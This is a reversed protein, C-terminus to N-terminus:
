RGSRDSSSKRYRNWRGREQKITLAQPGALQRPIRGGLQRALELLQGWRWVPLGSAHTGWPELGAAQVAHALREPDLDLIFAARPIDAVVPVGESHIGKSQSV